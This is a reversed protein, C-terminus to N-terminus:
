SELVHQNKGFVFEFLEDKTGTWGQVAQVFAEKAPPPPEVSTGGAAFTQMQDLADNTEAQAPTPTPTGTAFAAEGFLDVASAKLSDVTLDGEVNGLVAKQRSETLHGLGSKLLVNERELRTAKETAERARAAQEEVKARLGRPTDDDSQHEDTEEAPDAM